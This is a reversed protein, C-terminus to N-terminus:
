PTQAQPLQPNAGVHRNQPQRGGDDDKDSCDPSTYTCCHRSIQEGEEEEGEEEEPESDRLGRLRRGVNSKEAVGPLVQGEEAGKDQEANGGKQKEAEQVAQEKAKKSRKWKM